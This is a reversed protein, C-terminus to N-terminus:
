ATLNSSKVQCPTKTWFRLGEWQPFDTLLIRNQRPESDPYASADIAGCAYVATYLINRMNRVWIRRTPLFLTYFFHTSFSAISFM